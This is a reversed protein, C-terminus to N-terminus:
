ASLWVKEGIRLGMLDFIASPKWGQVRTSGAEIHDIFMPIIAGGEECILRQCEAYMEKRRKPDLMGRAANALQDFDPRRWTTDNTASTSKYAKSLAADVTTRGDSYSAYFPAKVWVNSWYGDVPERKVNVQIGCGAAASQFLVGADVAGSFAADSVKLEVELGDRGARKLHYRAKDPDYTHQPIAAAYYPNGRGIPQDNGVLGYGNLLTKILRDRDVAYKLALRIDNDTYPDATCNMALIAHQGTQSRVVQLKKNRKLLDATRGDIRNIVDVQSSILANIRAMADNIVLVEIADVHAANPKWYGGAKVTISRVGPEFHQLKYGGTGIPNAWDSFQDPVVLLRYDALTSPLDADGGDLFIQVRHADIKKIDRINEAAVKGVSTTNGRHLNISYIIDDADLTKGNHFVVDQRIDFVWERADSNPEWSSLLEPVPEGGDGIEVLGNMIQYGICIPVVDLYTRPDLSDASAGGSMGLKLTNGSLPQSDDSVACGSLGLGGASALTGFLAAGALFERRDMRECPARRILTL